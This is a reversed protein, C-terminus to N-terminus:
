GARSHPTTNAFGINNNMSHAYSIIIMHVTYQYYNKPTFRSYTLVCVLTCGGRRNREKQRFSPLKRQQDHSQVIFNAM